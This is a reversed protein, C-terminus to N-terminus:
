GHTFTLNGEENNTISTFKIDHVCRYEFTHFFNTKIIKLLM